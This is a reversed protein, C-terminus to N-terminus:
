SNTNELLSRDQPNPSSQNASMGSCDKGWLYSKTLHKTCSEQM